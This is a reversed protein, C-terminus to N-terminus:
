NLSGNFALLLTEEVLNLSSFGWRHCLKWVHKQTQLTYKFFILPLFFSLFLFIKLAPCLCCITQFATIERCKNLEDTWHKVAVWVLCRRHLFHYTKIKTGSVGWKEEATGHIFWTMGKGPRKSTSIVWDAFDNQNMDRGCWELIYKYIQFNFKFIQMHKHILFDIGILLNHTRHKVASHREM